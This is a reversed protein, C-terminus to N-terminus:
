LLKKSGYYDVLADLLPVNKLAPFTFNKTLYFSMAAFSSPIAQWNFEEIGLPKLKEHFHQSCYFFIKFIFPLLFM